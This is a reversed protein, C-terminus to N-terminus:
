NWRLSNAFRLRATASIGTMGRLERLLHSMFVFAEACKFHAQGGDSFFDVRELNAMAPASCLLAYSAILQRLFVHTHPVDNIPKECLGIHTEAATTGDERRFICVAVIVGIKPYTTGTTSNNPELSLKESWDLLVVLRSGPPAKGVAAVLKTRAALQHLEVDAHPVWLKMKEVVYQRFSSPSLLVEVLCDVQQSFM